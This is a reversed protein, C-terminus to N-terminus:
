SGSPCASGEPTSGSVGVIRGDTVVMAWGHTGLAGDVTQGDALRASFRSM